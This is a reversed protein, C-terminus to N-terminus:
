NRQDNIKVIYSVLGSKLFYLISERIEVETANRDTDFSLTDVKGSFSKQGYFIMQYSNGGSGNGLSTILIHLDAAQNDLSFNVGKVESRIFQMDCWTNSCDVYISLKRPVDNKIQGNSINWSLFFLVFNGILYYRM